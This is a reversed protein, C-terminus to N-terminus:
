EECMYIELKIQLVIQDDFEVENKENKVMVRDKSFAYSRLQMKKDTKSIDTIFKEFEEYTGGLKMSIDVAHVGTSAKEEWVVVPEEEGNLESDLTEFYSKENSVVAEKNEDDIRKQSNVYPELEAEKEQIDIALDYAYLDYGLVMLTMMKDIEDSTMMPYFESRASIIGTELTENDKELIPLQVIKLDKITRETKATEIAENTEKIGVIQPYIGWYGICVVVVFLALGVLLRKDRQTIEFKM